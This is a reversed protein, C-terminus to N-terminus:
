DFILYVILILVCWDLYVEGGDIDDHHKESKEDLRKDNKKQFAGFKKKFLASAIKDAKAQEKAELKAQKAGFAEDLTKTDEDDRLFYKYRSKVDEDRPKCVCLYLYTDDTSKLCIRCAGNRGFIPEIQIKDARSDFNTSLSPEAYETYEIPIVKLIQSTRRLIQSTRRRVNDYFSKRETGIVKYQPQKLYWGSSLNYSSGPENKDGMATKPVGDGSYRVMLGQGEMKEDEEGFQYKQLGDEEMEM